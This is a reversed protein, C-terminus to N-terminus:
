LGLHARIMGIMPAGVAVLIIVAILVIGIVMANRVLKGHDM